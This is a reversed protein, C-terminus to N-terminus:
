TVKSMAEREALKDPSKAREASFSMSPYRARLKAMNKSVAEAIMERAESRNTRVMALEVAQLALSFIIERLERTTAADPEKGYGLWKKAVDLLRATEQREVIHSEGDYLAREHADLWKTCPPSFFTNKDVVVSGCSYIVYDNLTLCAATQYFLVDGLEDILDDESHSDRVESLETVLGLAAHTFDRAPDRSWNYLANVLNRYENTDTAALLDDQEAFHTQTAM